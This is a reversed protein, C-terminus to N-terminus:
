KALIMGRTLRFPGSKLELFLVGSSILRADFTVSYTGPLKADNVLEAIQRGLVDFVKLTVFSSHPIQFGITTTPNFPNPYNQQLSFLEPLESEVVSNPPTFTSYLATITKAIGISDVRIPLEQEVHVFAKGNANSWQGQKNLTAGLRWLQSYTSTSFVGATLGQLEYNTKLNTLIAPPSTTGNSIVIQPYGNYVPNTRDFGHLQLSRASAVTVHGRHFVSQTVHSMDSSTDANAYRHTGAMFFWQANLRLFTRIGQICTNTDSRAHPIEVTLDQTGRTNFIYTGWGRQVPINEKLVYLTEAELTDYYAICEYGYQTVLLSAMAYNASKVANFVNTWVDLQSNTPIVFRESHYGPMGDRVQNIMQEIAGRGSTQASAETLPLCLIAFVFIALALPRHFRNMTNM